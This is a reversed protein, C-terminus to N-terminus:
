TGCRRSKTECAADQCVPCVKTGSNDTPDVRDIWAMALDLSTTVLSPETARHAIVAVRPQGYPTGDDVISSVLLYSKYQFPTM